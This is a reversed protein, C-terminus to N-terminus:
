KTKKSYQKGILHERTNLDPRLLIIYCKPIFICGLLGASSALIAFIEVAVMYKGKTSLYAPVYSVWVSCFVMMSFTIFQADNFSDPLKRVLFAVIFSLLALFGMYGIVSYFAITSGENCQLIMKGPESQTDYDPFPPSILLWATCIVVEGLSCLLVLSSSVRTGVWKRLKSSPKTANFAIVVMITKGLVSSVAITFIIGFAVQRLLCTVRGPRGIFILSCLFSLMLCFLLVYSLDRNNAKVIPTDQYKLFVALVLATIISFLIAISALAAALPDKYSLFDIVRPLCEDKKESPWQDESCKMCNEADTKNSFEGESCPICDFCCVPKQKQLVKRFGPVCSESCVSQPTQNYSPHWLIASQNVFLQQGSSASFNFKGVINSSLSGNPLLVWNIIDYNAPGNGKDDFFIEFGDTTKFHVEKIYQNLPFSSPFSSKKSKYSSRESKKRYMSHLAHALAYVSAYLSYTFQFNNLHFQWRSLNSLTEQGTCKPLDSHETGYLLECQFADRWLYQLFSPDPFTSPHLNYLFDQFGPIEGRHSAFAVSGNLTTCSSLTSPSSIAASILWVKGANMQRWILCILLALSNRTSYMIVVNALSKYVIDAIQNRRRFQEVTDTVHTVVPLMELFAVCNGSRIIERKLDESGRQDSRDESTLIGVWNWRFHNLLQILGQFQSYDNPVTRYFSPFEVRDNFLQDMSGYSIQPYRYIGTLTAIAHSTVSSLSGIFGAVQGQHHCSFGPISDMDGSLIMLTACLSFGATTCPDAIHFGLTINPLIESNQNIEQIAFYFALPNWYNHLNQVIVVNALSKYVIDAIQNRRTFQEATKPIVVPLMELFAVCNGSRIIERKLDESGRQDSRDDSTLIGVWNWRFHNLLQILGQFQSYDNPVTRYFSPFEVRDNFLQDLSGYSIELADRGEGNPTDTSSDSEESERLTLVSSCVHAAHALSHKREPRWTNTHSTRTPRDGVTAVNAMEAM